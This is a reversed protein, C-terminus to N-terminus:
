SLFRITISIPSFLYFLELDFFVLSRGPKKKPNKKKIKFCISMILKKRELFFDLLFSFSFSFSFSVLFFFRWGIEWM